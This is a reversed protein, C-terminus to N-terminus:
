PGPSLRLLAGASGLAAEADVSGPQLSLFCFGGPLQLSGDGKDWGGATGLGHQGRESSPGFSGLM